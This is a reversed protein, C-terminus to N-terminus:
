ERRLQDEEGGEEYFYELLERDSQALDGLFKTTSQKRRRVGDVRRQLRGRPDDVFSHRAKLWDPALGSLLQSPKAEANPTRQQIEDPFVTQVGFTPGVKLSSQGQNLMRPEEPLSPSKGALNDPAVGGAHGAAKVRTEGEAALILIPTRADEQKIPPAFKTDVPLDVTRTSPGAAPHREVTMKAKKRPPEESEEDQLIPVAKSLKVLERIIIVNKM